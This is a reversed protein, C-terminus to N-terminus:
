LRPIGSIFNMSKNILKKSMPELNKESLKLLTDTAKKVYGAVSPTTTRKLSIGAVPMVTGDPLFAGKLLQDRNLFVDFSTPKGNKLTIISTPIARLGKYRKIQRLGNSLNEYEKGLLVSLHKSEKTLTLVERNGQKIRALSVNCGYKTSYMTKLIEM